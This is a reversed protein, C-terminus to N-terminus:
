RISHQEKRCRTLYRDLDDEYTRWTTRQSWPTINFWLAVFPAHKPSKSNIWDRITDPKVSLRDAAQKISLLTRPSM